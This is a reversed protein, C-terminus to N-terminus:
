GNKTSDTGTIVRFAKLSAKRRKIEKFAKMAKRHNELGYVVFDVDSNEPDYLGPLTSGSIGMKDYPIEARRHFTSAVKM